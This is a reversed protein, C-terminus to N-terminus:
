NSTSITRLFNQRSKETACDVFSVGEKTIFDKFHPTLIDQLCVSHNCWWQVLIRRTRVGWWIFHLWRGCVYKYKKYVYGLDIVVYIYLISTHIYYMQITVMFIYFSGSYFSGGAQLLIGDACSANIVNLCNSLWLLCWLVPRHNCPCCCTGLTRPQKDNM